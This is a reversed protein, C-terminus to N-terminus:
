LIISVIFLRQCQIQFFWLNLRTTFLYRVRAMIVREQLSIYLSLIKWFFPWFVFIHEEFLPNSIHLGRSWDVPLQNQFQITQYKHKPQTKVKSKCQDSWTHVRSEWILILKVGYFIKQNQLGQWFSSKHWLDSCFESFIRTRFVRIKKLTCM